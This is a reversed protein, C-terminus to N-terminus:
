QPKEKAVIKAITSADLRLQFPKLEYFKNSKGDDAIEMASTVLGGAELKDLHLYLLARSMGMRRALESVYQRGQHLEAIIRLRHPNDLAALVAELPPDESPM